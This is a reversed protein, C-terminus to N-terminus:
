ACDLKYYKLAYSLNITFISRTLIFRNNMRLFLYYLMQKNITKILKSILLNPDDSLLYDLKVGLSKFGSM